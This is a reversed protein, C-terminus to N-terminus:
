SVVEGGPCPRDDDAALAAFRFLYEFLEGTLDLADCGLAKVGPAELACLAGGEARSQAPKLIEVIDADRHRHPTNSPYSASEDAATSSVTVFSSHSLKTRSFSAASRSADIIATM